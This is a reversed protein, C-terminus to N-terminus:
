SKNAFPSNEYTNRTVFRSDCQVHNRRIHAKRFNRESKTKSGDNQLSLTRIPRM